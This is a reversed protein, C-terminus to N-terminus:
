VGALFQRQVAQELALRWHTRKAQLGAYHGVIKKTYWDLVIVVYMWYIPEVMVKTMDIVCWQQPATPRPKNRSPTRLAKLRDNPKVLLAHARMLRLIHKKNILLGDV